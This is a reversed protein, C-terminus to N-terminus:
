EPRGQRATLDTHGLLYARAIINASMHVLHHMPWIAKGGMGSQVTMSRDCQRSLIRCLCRQKSKSQASCSHIRTRHIAFQQVKYKTHEETVTRISAFLASALSNQCNQNCSQLSSQHHRPQGEPKGGTHHGHRTSPGGRGRPHCAGHCSHLRGCRPSCGMVQMACCCPRLRSCICHLVHRTVHMACCSCQAVVFAKCCLFHAGGGGGGREWCGCVAAQATHVNLTITSSLDGGSFCSNAKGM